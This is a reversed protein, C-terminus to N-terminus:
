VKYSVAMGDGKEDSARIIVTHYRSDDQVIRLYGRVEKAFQIVNDAIILSGPKLKPELLALYKSYLTKAADIFVFGFQGKLKPIVELADGEVITVVKDLQVEALNARAIKAMEPDIEITTLRGRNQQFALGLWIAGYGTATGIELGRKARSSEVMLRLFAGDGPTTNRPIRTFDSIFRERRREMATLRAM